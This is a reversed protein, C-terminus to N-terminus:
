PMGLARAVQERVGASLVSKGGVARVRGITTAESSIMSAVTTHLTAPPTLLLVGQSKGQMPGGALADAFGEGSVLAANRWSLRLERVGYDAVRLATRYRNSGAIRGVKGPGLMETLSEEVRASVAGEGGLIVAASAGISSVAGATAAPLEGRKTLLVPRRKAYALPGGALADPYDDGRVIFVVGDTSLKSARANAVTVSAVSAATAFRDTGGIRQVQMLSALATEFQKSIASEGGVIIAKFAKLRLVEVKVRHPVTTATKPVLLVPGRVAGALAAAGLADPFDNGNAIVVTTAQRSGSSLYPYATRSAWYATDYRNPGSVPEVWASVDTGVEEIGTYRMPNYGEYGWYPYVVVRAVAGNGSGIEEFALYQTRAPSTWGGFVVAHGGTTATKPKDLIDGPRLEGKDIPACVGPLTATDLSRAKGASDKLALAMSVYGSCDKRYHQTPDEPDAYYATQSYTVGDLVWSQARRIVRDRDIALAQAPVTAMVAALCVLVPAAALIKSRLM